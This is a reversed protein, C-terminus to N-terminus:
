WLRDFFGQKDGALSLEMQRRMWPIAGMTPLALDRLWGLVTSNGQFTPSLWRSLLSYFRSQGHRERQYGRFAAAVTAEAGLQRALCEADLLGLNAGQGLHPSMAHAADGLLVMRNDFLRRPFEHLYGAFVLAEHRGLAAVPEAAEPLLATVEASWERFDRSRIATLEDRHLGWFFTARGDGVPVLGTLRRTGRAAQQVVDSVAACPGTGWLAGYEYDVRRGRPNLAERLRSRAGDCGAVFAFPGHEKGDAAAAIVAGPTGRVDVIEASTRTEVGAQEVAARLIEFLVGRHVGFALGGPYHLQVLNRGRQTKAHLGRLVASRAAVAELLGLGRLIRQGSPQLLFGAGVPGLQPARELLVVRHGARALLIALAGGAIGFGVIGIPLASQM